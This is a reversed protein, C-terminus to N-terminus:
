FLITWCFNSYWVYRSNLAQIQIESTSELSKILYTGSLNAALCPQINSTPTNFFSAVPLVLLYFLTKLWSTHLDIRMPIHHTTTTNHSTSSRFSPIHYSPTTYIAISHPQQQAKRSFTFVRTNLSDTVSQVSPIRLDLPTPLSNNQNSM